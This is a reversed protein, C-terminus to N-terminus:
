HRGVDLLKGHWWWEQGPSDADETPAVRVCIEDRIAPRQVGYQTDEGAAKGVVEVLGMRAGGHGLLQLEFGKQPPFVRPPLLFAFLLQQAGPLVINHVPLCKGGASFRLHALTRPLLKSSFRLASIPYITEAIFLLVVVRHCSWEYPLLPIQRRIHTDTVEGPCPHKVTLPFPHRCAVTSVPSTCLLM